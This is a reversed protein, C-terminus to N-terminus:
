DVCTIQADHTSVVSLLPLTPLFSSPFLFSFSSLYKTIGVSHTWSKWWCDRVSFFFVLMSRLKNKQRAVTEENNGSFLLVIM